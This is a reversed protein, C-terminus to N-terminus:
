LFKLRQGLSQYYTRTNLLFALKQISHFFCFSYIMQNENIHEMLYGDYFKQEHNRGTKNWTIDKIIPLIEKFLSFDTKNTRPTEMIFINPLSNKPISRNIVPPNKINIHCDFIDWVALTLVLLSIGVLLWIYTKKGMKSFRWIHNMIQDFKSGKNVRSTLKSTYQM